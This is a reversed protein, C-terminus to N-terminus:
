KKAIWVSHLQCRWQSKCVEASNTENLRCRHLGCCAQKRKLKALSLFVFVSLQQIETKSNMFFPHYPIVAALRHLARIRRSRDFVPTALESGVRYIRPKRKKKEGRNGRVSAVRRGGEVFNVFHGFRFMYTNITFQLLCFNGCIVASSCLSSPYYSVSIVTSNPTRLSINQIRKPCQTKNHTIRPKAIPQNRTSPLVFCHYHQYQLSRTDDQLIYATWCSVCLKKITLNIWWM